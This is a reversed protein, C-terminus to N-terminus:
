DSMESFSARYCRTLLARTTQPAQRVIPVAGRLNAAAVVPRGEPNGEEASPPSGPKRLPVNRRAFEGLASM